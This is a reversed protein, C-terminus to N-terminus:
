LNLTLICFQLLYLFEQDGQTQHHGKSVLASNGHPQAAIGTGNISSDGKGM